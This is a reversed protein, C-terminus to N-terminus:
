HERRQDRVIRAWDPMPGGWFTTRWAPPLLDTVGVPDLVDALDDADIILQTGLLRAPLRGRRIWRRITEPHRGAHKAADRVTLLRTHHVNM